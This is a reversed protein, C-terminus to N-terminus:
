VLFCVIHQVVFDVFELFHFSRSVACVANSDLYHNEFSSLIHNTKIQARTFKSEIEMRGYHQSQNPNEIPRCDLRRKKWRQIDNLNNM